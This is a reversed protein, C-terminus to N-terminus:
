VLKHVSRVVPQKFRNSLNISEVSQKPWIDRERPQQTMWIHCVAAILLLSLLSQVQCISGNCSLLSFRARLIYSIWLYLLTSFNCVCLTSHKIYFCVWSQGIRLRTGGAFLASSQPLRRPSLLKCMDHSWPASCFFPLHLVWHESFLSGLQQESWTTWM